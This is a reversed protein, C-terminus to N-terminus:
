LPAVIVGHFPECQTKIFINIPTHPYQGALVLPGEVILDAEEQLLDQLGAFRDQDFLGM